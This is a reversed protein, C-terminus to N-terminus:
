AHANTKKDKLTLNYKVSHKTLYMETKRERFKDSIYKNITICIYIYVNDVWWGLEKKYLMNLNRKTHMKHTRIMLFYFLTSVWSMHITWSRFLKSPLLGINFNQSDLLVAPTEKSM